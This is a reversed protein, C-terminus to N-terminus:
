TAAFLFTELLRRSITWPYLIAITGHRRGLMAVVFAREGFKTRTRQVAVDGRASSRTRGKVSSRECLESLYEPAPEHIM